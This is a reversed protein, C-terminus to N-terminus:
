RHISKPRIHPIISGPDHMHQICPKAMFVLYSMEDDNAVEEKRWARDSWWQDGIMPSSEKRHHEDGTLPRM